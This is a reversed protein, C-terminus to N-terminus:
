RSLPPLKPLKEPISRGDRTLPTDELPVDLFIYTRGTRGLFALEVGERRGLSELDDGPTLMRFIEREEGAEPDVLASLVLRSGRWFLDLPRWGDHISVAVWERDHRLTYEKVILM